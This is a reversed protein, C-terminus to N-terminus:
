ILRNIDPKVGSNSACASLPEDCMSVHARWLVAVIISTCRELAVTVAGSSMVVPPNPMRTVGPHWRLSHEHSGCLPVAAAAAAAAAATRM